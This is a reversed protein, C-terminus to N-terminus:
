RPGKIRRVRAAGEIEPSLKRCRDLGNEPSLIGAVTSEEAAATVGSSKGWGSGMTAPRSRDTKTQGSFSKKWAQEKRGHINNNQSHWTYYGGAALPIILLLWLWRRKKGEEEQGNVPPLILSPDKELSAAIKDWDASDTRIPYGESARKFLDDIHSGNINSM